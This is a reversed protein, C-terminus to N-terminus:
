LFVSCFYVVGINFINIFKFKNLFKKYFYKLKKLFYGYEDVIFVLFNILGILNYIKRIDILNLCFKFM